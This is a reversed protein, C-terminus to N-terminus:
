LLLGGGAIALTLRELPRRSKSPVFRANGESKPRCRPSRQPGSTWDLQSAGARTMGFTQAPSLLLIAWRPVSGLLMCASTRRPTSLSTMDFQVNHFPARPARGSQVLGSHDAVATQWTNTHHPRRLQRGLLIAAPGGCGCSDSEFPLASNHPRERMLVATRVCM